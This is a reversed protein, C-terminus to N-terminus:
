GESIPPRTAPVEGSPAGADRQVGSATAQRVFEIFARAAPLVTPTRRWVLVVPLHVAPQLHRVAVAPSALGTLSRLLIAAAFGRAALMRLLFTAAGSSRPVPTPRASTSKASRDPRSRPSRAICSSRAAAPM